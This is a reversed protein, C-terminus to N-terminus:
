LLMFNCIFNYSYIVCMFFVQLSGKQCYEMFIFQRNPDLCIGIFRTIHDNQLDKM